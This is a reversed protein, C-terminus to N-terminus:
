EDSAKGTPRAQSLPQWVDARGVLIYAILGFIPLTFLVAIWAIAVGINRQVSVIRLTLVVMLIIHLILGLGAFDTWTWSAVQPDIVLTEVPMEM